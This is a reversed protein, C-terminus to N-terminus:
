PRLVGGIEQAAEPHGLYEEIKHARDRGNSVPPQSLKGWREDELPCGIAVADTPCWVNVWDRVRPPQHPGRTLLRENVGDLGLPSGATVLLVPDLGDPLRTLLDMGVVTGLSHTVLVLEGSTPMTEMVTDLVTQRVASDGLYLDVDRLFTAITWEDLDSRAALWSLPRHLAGVLGSGFGETTAPGNRPMGARAAAEYLLQEYSGTPSEAAFVEAAAAASVRDLGVPEVTSERGSVLDHLRTGYFPFWVDEPDLTPLSALTLGRNLGATWSRRLEDPFNEQQDRGHLFVLHQRGGFATSRARLGVRPRQTGTESGTMPVTVPVGPVPPTTVGPVASTRQPQAGPAAAPVAPATAMAQDLGADPGMETLLARRAPDLDLGALHKLISSIRVGENAVWEIADDGDGQQWPRGDKRLVRGQDDKKPVGSHHLAVVEWQDNFVPSGSNGTETDNTYHVFDDLRVLVANDRLAIEKLRGSPHGIINVKEGLVLKGIQVSLRNWGFIEGPAPGDQAPEVAVLAFDLRQDAAFFAGPDLEMRVVTDPLNDATVQANFEAFCTRAFAEDPLVHHNTMLLRPSVLFGTGHPLERGDRRLTIRAVTAGARVGRPLFSWAQLENSLDIIRENADPLDMAERHIDAVVASPSLGGRDLIRDARVALADPSDPFRVGAALRGEVREREAASNEYRRAAEDTAQQHLEQHSRDTVSM